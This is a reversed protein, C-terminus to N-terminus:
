FSFNERKAYGEVRRLRLGEIRDSVPSCIEEVSARSSEGEPLEVGLELDWPGLCTALYCVRPHREAFREVARRHGEGRLRIFVKCHCVALEACDVDFIDDRLVEHRRLLLLRDELERPSCRLQRALDGPSLNRATALLDILREDLRSLPVASGAVRPGMAVPYCPVRPALYKRGFFTFSTRVIVEHSLVADHLGLFVDDIFATAEGASRARLAVGLGTDIRVVWSINPSRLILDLLKGQHPGPALDLLIVFESFGLRYPDLLPTRVIARSSALARLNEAVAAPPLGTEAAVVPVSKGLNSQVAGLVTQQLVSFSM